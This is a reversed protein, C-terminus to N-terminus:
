FAVLAGHPGDHPSNDLALRVLGTDSVMEGSLRARRWFPRNYAVVCKIASGMCAGDTLQQRARPLVPQYAIAGALAPPLAVVVYDAHYTGSPIWASVQDADQTVARVPASLLVGR